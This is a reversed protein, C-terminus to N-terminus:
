LVNIMIEVKYVTNWQIEPIDRDSVQKTYQPIQPAILSGCAPRGLKGMQFVIIYKANDLYKRYM